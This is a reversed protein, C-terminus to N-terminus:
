KHAAGVAETISKFGDEKALRVLDKNIRPVLGLGEFVLASYLQVLSAGAKIKAYAEEGNSIGGVGILPLKDKTLGYFEHLVQTSLEFLPKGSLGGTQHALQGEILSKPRTITTNTIILGQIGTALVVDIIDQKDEETLDPAIKVLLPPTKEGCAVAMAKQTAVILRTLEKQGQLARLGPTNPSSVNIVVYDALASLHKAGFAYDDAASDSSKNKGLNIGIIGKPRNELRKAAAMVGENNFGFRNIVARDQNLRFLRPKANGPQAKPTVSGAEVFGFGAKLMPGMVEANKDFGASLGVPNPFDLGWLNVNLFPDSANNVRPGLGSKLAKISMNHAREPEFCRMLPLALDSLSM